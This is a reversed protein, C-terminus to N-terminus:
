EYVSCDAVILLEIIHETKTEIQRTQPRKKFIITSSLVCMGCENVIFATLMWVKFRTM